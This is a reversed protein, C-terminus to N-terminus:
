KLGARWLSSGATIYLHRDEGKGFCLNTPPPEVKLCALEQGDLSFVLIGSRAPNCAAAWLSGDPATTCGETEGHGTVLKEVKAAAPFLAEAAALLSPLLLMLLMRM